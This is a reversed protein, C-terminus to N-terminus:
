TTTESPRRGPSDSTSAFGGFPTLELQRRWITADRADKVTVSVKRDAPLRPSKGVEIERVLGKFHV